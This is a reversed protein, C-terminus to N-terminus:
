RELILCRANRARRLRRRRCDSWNVRRDLLINAGSGTLGGSGNTRESVKLSTSGIVIQPSHISKVVVMVVVVDVDVEEDVDVLVVVLVHSVANQQAV